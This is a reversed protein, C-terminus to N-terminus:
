FVGTLFAVGDDDDYRNEHDPICALYHERIVLSYHGKGLRILETLYDRVEEVSAVNPFTNNNM